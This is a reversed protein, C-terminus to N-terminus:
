FKDRDRVSRMPGAVRRTAPTPLRPGMPPVARGGVAADWAAFAVLCVDKLGTARMKPPHGVRYCSSSDECSAASLLLFRLLTQTSM